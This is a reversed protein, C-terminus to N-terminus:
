HASLNMVHSKSLEMTRGVFLSARMTGFIARKDRMKAMSSQFAASYQYRVYERSSPFFTADM